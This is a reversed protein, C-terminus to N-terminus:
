RGGGGGAEKKRTEARGERKDGRRKKKEGGAGGWLMVFLGLTNVLAWVDNALPSNKFYSHLPTTIQFGSDVIMGPETDFDTSSYLGDFAYSFPLSPSGSIFKRLMSMQEGPHTEVLLVLKM